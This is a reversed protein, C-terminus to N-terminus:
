KLQSTSVAAAAGAATTPGPELLTRRKATEKLCNQHVRNLRDQAGKLLNAVVVVRKKSNNLKNIAGELDLNKVAPDQQAAKIAELDETLLEINARLEQQAKRTDEVRADIIEVTPRLLAVLGEQLAEVTPNFGGAASYNGSSEFYDLDDDGAPTATTSNTDSSDVVAHTTRKLEEEAESDEQQEKKDTREKVEKCGDENRSSDNVENSKKKGSSDDDAM